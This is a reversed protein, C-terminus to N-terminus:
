NKKCGCTGGFRNLADRTKQIAELVSQQSPRFDYVIHDLGPVPGVWPQFPFFLPRSDKKEMGRPCRRLRVESEIRITESGACERLELLPGAVTCM